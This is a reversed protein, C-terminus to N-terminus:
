IWVLLERWWRKVILILLKLLLSLRARMKIWILLEPWRWKVILALLLRIKILVLLKPRLSLWWLRISLKARLLPEPLTRRLWQVITIPLLCFWPRRRSALSKCDKRVINKSIVKSNIMSVFKVKVNRAM